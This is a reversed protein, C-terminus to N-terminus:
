HSTSSNSKSTPHNNNQTIHLLCMRLIIFCSSAIKRSTMKSTVGDVNTAQKTWKDKGWKIKARKKRRLSETQIENTDKSGHICINHMKKFRVSFLSLRVSLSNQSCRKQYFFFCFSFSSFLSLFLCLFLSFYQFLKPFSLFSSSLSFFFFLKKSNHDLSIM